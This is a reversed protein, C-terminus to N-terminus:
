FTNFHKYRKLAHNLDRYHVGLHETISSLARMCACAHIHYNGHLPLEALFTKPCAPISQCADDSHSGLFFPFIIIHGCYIM